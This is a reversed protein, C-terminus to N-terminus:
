YLKFSFIPNYYDYYNDTIGWYYLKNSKDYEFIAYQRFKKKGYVHMKRVQKVYKYFKVHFKYYVYGNNIKFTYKFSNWYVNWRKLKAIKKAKLGMYKGYNSAKAKASSKYLDNIPISYTGILLPNTYKKVNVLQNRYGVVVNHIKFTNLWMDIYKKNKLTNYQSKSLTIKNSGKKFTLDHITFSKSSSLYNDDGKYKINYTKYGYAYDNFPYDVTVPIGFATHEGVGNIYINLSQELPNDNEDLVCIEYNNYDKKFVVKIHTPSKPNSSFATQNESKLLSEDSIELNDESISELTINDSPEFKGNLHVFDTINEGSNLDAACITTMAVVMVVFLLPILLLKKKFM